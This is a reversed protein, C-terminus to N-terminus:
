GFSRRLREVVSPDALTTADGSPRGEAVDRLLRRMIKGSRTKPLDPTVIVREPRAIAGLEKAVHERLEKEGVSSGSRLIVYAVIAEGKIPDHKGVVAAEAVAPHSVLASEVEMTGIRHGAVKIVDDVRGLIMYYGGDRRAGDKPFYSGPFRSWYESEFRAPDRWLTRFMAPWPTRFVLYGGAKDGVVPNGNEDVIDAVLGPFPRGAYGPRTSDIGPLTTLLIMGTETQWWTDVIPCRGGGVHERYWIWAEPNIPEGVTGLLRISSLDHKAPWQSGWQMFTRIATPATYFITVKHKAAIRWFRDKDPFDPAGEYMLVTAGTSLPGYVVYSHGTVWGVDATCWYSDDPKLDLVFRTTTNVGVMYGGTTHLVGKPKGTTGSTYLTYLPDESDMPEPECRAGQRPIIDHWWVDRPGMRVAEGSRKWVLVKEVSPCQAVADDVIEKLKLVNGRRYSADATIVLRAEADQIRSALATASFGAFVVSHVAGIRACALMAVATEPAMPMYIAVRDGKRVGLEKLANAAQCVERLLQAYTLTRADGPEGEWVLARKDPTRAAHRDVCSVSANLKARVFWQAHPLKWDLVREWPKMWEVHAAEAEWFGEPDRAAREYIGPDRVNAAAAFAPPPPFRRGEHLLADISPPEPM